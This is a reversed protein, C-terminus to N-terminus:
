NKTEPLTPLPIVELGDELLNTLEQQNAEGYIARPKVEGFHIKRAEQSFKDGVYDANQKIKKTLERITDLMKQQEINMGIALNERKQSTSVAPAMLTKEVQNSNCKPCAILHLHNQKEFDDNSRFWGDFQHENHCHLCFHIM